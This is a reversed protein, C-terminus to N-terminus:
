NKELKWVQKSTIKLNFDSLEEKLKYKVDYINSIGTIQLLKKSAIGEPNDILMDLLVKKNGRMKKLLEEPISLENTM